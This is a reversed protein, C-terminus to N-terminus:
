WYLDTFATQLHRCIVFGQRDHTMLKVLATELHKLINRHCNRGHWMIECELSECLPRRLLLHLLKGQEQTSPGCVRWRVFNSVLFQFSCDLTAMQDILNGQGNKSESCFQLNDQLRQRLATAQMLKGLTNAPLDQTWTGGLSLALRLLHGAKSSSRKTGDQDSLFRNARGVEAMHWSNEAKLWASGVVNENSCTQEAQKWCCLLLDSSLLTSEFGM